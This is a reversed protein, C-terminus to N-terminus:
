QGGILTWERNGNLQYVKGTEGCLAMSHIAIDGIGEFSQTPLDTVESLNDFLFSVVSENKGGVSVRNTIGVITIM